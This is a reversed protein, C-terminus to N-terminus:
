LFAVGVSLFAVGKEMKKAYSQVMLFCFLTHLFFKVGRGVGGANGKVVFSIHQCATAFIAEQAFATAMQGCAM